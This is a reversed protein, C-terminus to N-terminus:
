TLCDRSCTLSHQLPRSSISLYTPLHMIVAAGSSLDGLCYSCCCAVCCCSVARGHGGDNRREERELRGQVRPSSQRRAGGCSGPATQWRTEPWAAMTTRGDRAMIRRKQRTKRTTHRRHGHSHTDAEDVQGRSAKARGDMWVTAMVVAGTYGPRSDNLEDACQVRGMARRCSSTAARM